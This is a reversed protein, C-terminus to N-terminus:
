SKARRFSGSLVRSRKRTCSRPRTRAAQPSSRAKSPQNARKRRRRVPESPENARNGAERSVGRGAMRAPRPGNARNEGLRPSGALAACPNTRDLRRHRVIRMGPSRAPAVRDDMGASTAHAVDDGVIQPGPGSRGAISKPRITLSSPPSLGGSQFRVCSQDFAFSARLNPGAPRLVARCRRATEAPRTGDIRPSVARGPTRVDRAQPGPRAPTGDLHRRVGLPIPRPFTVRFM